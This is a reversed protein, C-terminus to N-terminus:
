LFYRKETNKMSRICEQGRGPSSREALMRTKVGRKIGSLIEGHRLAVRLKGRLDQVGKNEEQLM